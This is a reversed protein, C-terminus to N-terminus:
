VNKLMGALATKRIDVAGQKNVGYRFDTEKGIIHVKDEARTVATYLWSRDLLKGRELLVIVNPAQSGQLKHLTLCYALDIYEFLQWDVELLRKNGKEDLDELEIVCAYEDTPEACKLVGLTGNQVDHKYSTLTIVIPDGERFDYSGKLIPMDTLDLIKGSPNAVGQLMINTKRVTDNTPAVIMANNYESYATVADQLIDGTSEQFTIDATTLSEPMIGQRIANSYRPVSSNIGQRKVVDLEVHKIVGSKIVDNLIFGANIPPLQYPDGVLLIRTNDSFLTVLRWMTYADLMSAEDILLVAEDTDLETERLLKAITKTEFGISQQLRRAAKGSLAVPYITCGLEQYADVILKTTFTKGTGAGGTLAFVNSLLATRVAREQANELKWGAPVSSTYAKELNSQWSHQVKSLKGFRKAITKEFIYNGSVFYQNNHKVFGVIDGDLESAKAVLRQDKNLLKSVSSKIDQWVAVTNGQDSWLRLAQEVIAVLRVEDDQKIGFHKQAIADVKNFRMGLSFLRYPNQTLFNIADQDAFRFLQRQIPAEIEWEVLQASHKLNSYGKYGDWLGHVAKDSLLVSRVAQFNTISQDQEYPAYKDCELINFIDSKFENWLFQASITGIGEFAKETSLFTVFGLGNDPMVCKLTPEMFRWVDVYGGTSVQQQRVSFNQEKLIKWQQGVKPDINLKDQTTLIEIRHAGAKHNVFVAGLRVNDPQYQYIRTIRVLYASSKM